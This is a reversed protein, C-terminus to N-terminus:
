ALILCLRLAINKEECIKEALKGANYFSQKDSRGDLLILADTQPLLM